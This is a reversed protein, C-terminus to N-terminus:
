GKPKLRIVFDKINEVWGVQMIDNYLVFIMLCMLLSFGARNIYEEVKGPLPKGLVKEVALLFIHGGDLVPIPFLNFIALSASIVAM